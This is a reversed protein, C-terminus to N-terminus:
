WSIQTLQAAYFADGWTVEPWVKEPEGEIKFTNYSVIM